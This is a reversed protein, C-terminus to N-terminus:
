PLLVLKVLDSLLPLLFLEVVCDVNKDVVLKCLICDSEPDVDLMCPVLVRQVM